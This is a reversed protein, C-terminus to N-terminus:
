FVHPGTSLASAGSPLGSKLKGRATPRSQMHRLSYMKIVPVTTIHARGTPCQENDGQSGFGDDEYTRM